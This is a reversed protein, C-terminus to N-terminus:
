AVARSGAWVGARRAGAGRAGAGPGARAPGAGAPAGVPGARQLLPCPDDTGEAAQRRGSGAVATSTAKLARQPRRSTTAPPDCYDVKSTPHFPGLMLRRVFQGDEAIEEASVDFTFQQM